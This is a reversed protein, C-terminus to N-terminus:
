APPSNLFHGPINDALGLVATQGNIRRADVTTAPVYKSSDNARGGLM